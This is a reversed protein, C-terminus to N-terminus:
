PKQERVFMAFAAAAAAIANSLRYQKAQSLRSKRMRVM